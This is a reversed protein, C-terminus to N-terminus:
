HPARRSVRVQEGSAAQYLRPPILEQWVQDPDSAFVQEETAPRIHWDGRALENELQGPAWGAYGVYLRLFAPDSSSDTLLAEELSALHVGQLIEVAPQPPNNMRLLTHMTGTEVPGGLYLNGRYEALGEVRPLADSPKVDMPKNIILGLAGSDGYFLLLIVTESFTPSRLDRSAVLFQGRALVQEAAYSNTVCTGALLILLVANRM